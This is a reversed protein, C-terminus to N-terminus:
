IGAIAQDVLTKDAAATHAEAILGTAAAAAVAAARERLEAVAAREAAAIKDEASKTRREILTEADAKAKALLARAEEEAHAKLEEAHKAAEKVKKAYEGKLAEAEARLRAAEDLQAKIDAIQKDLMAAVIKPVGAKLMILFVAIMSLAVWGGPTLGLATPYEAHHEAAGEAVAALLSLDLM